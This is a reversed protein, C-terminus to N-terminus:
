HFTNSAPPTVTNPDSDKNRKRFPNLRKLGSGVRSALGSKPASAEPQAVPPEAAAALAATSPTAQVPAPAPQPVPQVAAQVPTVPEIPTHVAAVESAPPKAAAPKRSPSRVPTTAPHSAIEVPAAAVPETPAPIPSLEAPPLIALKPGVPRPISDSSNYTQALFYALGGPVLLAAGLAIRPVLARRGAWGPVANAAKGTDGLAKALPQLACLFEEASVYREDPWLKMAKKVIADAMPPLKPNVKTPALLAQREISHILTTDSTNEYPAHGTLLEYLTAGCGYIDARSDPKTHGKLLEPAAYRMLEVPVGVPATQSADTRQDARARALGFDTLKAFRRGRSYLISDPSVSQHIVRQQHAYRLAELTQRIIEVAEWPPLQGDALVSRLPKGDPLETVMVLDDDAWFATMVETIHPHRLRAQLRIEELFQQSDRISGQGAGYVVKIAEERETLAHKVRYVATGSGSLLEVVAYDGLTQGPYFHV